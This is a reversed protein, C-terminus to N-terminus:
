KNLWKFCRGQKIGYITHIGVNLHEAIERCSVGERLMKKAQQAQERTLKRWAKGQDYVDLINQSRSGYALNELRNDQPNGNLHRVDCKEPPPGYFALAVLQHVPRGPMGKGLVVSLHGSKCYKGPKLTKGRILRTFPTGGHGIQTIYRDLSRVRGLNSVQYKGEYGPIDKWLEDM